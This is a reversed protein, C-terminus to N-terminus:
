AESAVCIPPPGTSYCEPPQGRKILARPEEPPRARIRKLSGHLGTLPESFEPSGLAMVVLEGLHQLSRPAHRHGLLSERTERSADGSLVAAIVGDVEEGASLPLLAPAPNWKALTVNPVQNAGVQIALGIRDLLAGLNLWSVGQDPWGEPTLHGFIQQGLGAVVQVARQTTDPAANMVRLLSAVLEFPTKAKTRYAAHSNFEPSTVITRMVERIDGDTRLYSRAAREVLAASPQDGVFHTVLKRAIFRATSPHRALIDLVQEGDEIGRGAPIRVGLVMKEGADHQDPHFAFLGGMAANDIGWGTLCRAVEQVDHQTYGGEVGLTHLEMLERAYNENPGARRHSAVHILATDGLPPHAARIQEIRLEALTPHLSDVGSQSNDLYFLMAPSKAVAELLDRFKGLAHARITHDYDVLAFPSPTKDASVSFHNEWFVTMVELLQRDSITARLLISPILEAQAASSQISLKILSNNRENEQAVQDRLDALESMASGMVRPQRAVSDALRAVVLPVDFPQPHAAVLEYASKHTVDLLDLVSDAVRDPIRDPHLQMEIWVKVGVREVTALDGPRAGFTLRNLAQRARDADSLPQDGAPPVSAAPSAPSAPISIRGAPSCALVMGAMALSPALSRVSPRM